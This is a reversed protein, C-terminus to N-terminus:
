GIHQTEIRRLRRLVGVAPDEGVVHDIVAEREQGLAFARGATQFRVGVSELLKRVEAGRM